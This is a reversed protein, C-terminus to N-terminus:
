GEKRIDTRAMKNHMLEYARRRCGLADNCMYVKGTSVTVVSGKIGGVTYGMLINGCLACKPKEEISSGM